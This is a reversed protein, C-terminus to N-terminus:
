RAAGVSASFIAKEYLQWFRSSDVSLVVRAKPRDPRPLNFEEADGYAVVRGYSPGQSCDVTVWLSEERTVLSPDLLCAAAIADWVPLKFDPDDKFLHEFKKQHFSTFFPHDAYIGAWER